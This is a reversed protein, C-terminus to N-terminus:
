DEAFFRKRVAENVPVDPGSFLTDPQRSPDQAILPMARARRADAEPGTKLFLETHWLNATHTVESYRNHETAYAHGASEWNDTSLLHDRLVRADRMTLSLGQGWSPDSAAAADGMLAVGDRYPYEVWVEAGDFTALPGVAKAHEYFAPNMGTKKCDEIYRPLDAAGQYRSHTGTHFGLYTRARGGGQPFVVAVQGLTSHIVLQGIDEPVSVNDMLVGALLMDEPDRRVQFGASARVASSRGDAGVVLRARIEESRGNEGTVVTAPSGPRVEKVTVGRRVNAGANAAAGLLVEQMAPHYFSICPLQHPTTPLMPRHGTLISGSYFDVWPVEHACRGRLLELVGLHKAEAVGWPTVFEGRVRDKFQKERELILVRAGSKAMCMALSSGGLGGGVVILDYSEPM